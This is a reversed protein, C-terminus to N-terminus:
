SNINKYLNTFEKRPSVIGFSLYKSNYKILKYDNEIVVTKEKNKIDFGIISFLKDYFIEANDLDNVTIHVHDILPKM